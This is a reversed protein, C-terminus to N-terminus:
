AQQLERIKHWGDKALSIIKTEVTRSQQEIVKSFYKVAQEIKQTRRSLEGALYLTKLESVQTGLFDGTSYSLEYESLALQMFRTEQNRDELLRYLWALRIYLGAIAIHRDNRLVGAYAALKYTKISDGITRTEGFNQPVWNNSINKILIAKEAEKLRIEAEDSYAFGCQPCVNVYYLTPNHEEYFPFFDSDFGKAKIFRSRMKKTTFHATCLPCICKKDYLPGITTM